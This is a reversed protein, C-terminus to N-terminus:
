VNRLRDDMGNADCGKITNYSCKYQIMNQIIITTTFYMDMGKCVCKIKARIKGCIKGSISAKQQPLKCDYYFYFAKFCQYLLM